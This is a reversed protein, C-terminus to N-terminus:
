AFRRGTCFRGPTDLRNWVDVEHDNALVGFIEVGTELVDTTGPTTSLRFIM